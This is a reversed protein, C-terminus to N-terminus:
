EVNEEQIEVKRREGLIATHETSMVQSFVIYCFLFCFFWFIKISFGLRAHPNVPMLLM